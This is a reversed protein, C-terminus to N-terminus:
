RGREVAGRGDLGARVLEDSPEKDKWAERCSVLTKM